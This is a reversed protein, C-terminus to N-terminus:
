NESLSDDVVCWRMIQSQVDPDLDAFELGCQYLGTSKPAHRVICSLLHDETQVGIKGFLKRMNLKLVSSEPFPWPSKLKIGGGSIDITNCVLGVWVPENPDGLVRSALGDVTVLRQAEAAYREPLDQSALDVLFGGKSEVCKKSHCKVPGDPSLLRLTKCLPNVSLLAPSGPKVANPTYVTFHSEQVGTVLINIQVQIDLDRRKYSRHNQRLPLGRQKRKVIQNVRRTLVHFDIPKAIFDDAGLSVALRVSEFDRVGGLVMIPIGQIEQEQRVKRLLTFGNLGPMQLDALTLDPVQERIMKLASQGDNAVAFSVEPFKERLNEVAIRSQVTDYDVILVLLPSIEDSRENAHM